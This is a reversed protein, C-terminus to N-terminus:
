QQMQIILKLKKYNQLQPDTQPFTPNLKSGSPGRQINKPKKRGVCQFNGKTEGQTKKPRMHYLRGEGTQIPHM